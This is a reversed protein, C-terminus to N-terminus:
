SKDNPSTTPQETKAPTKDKSNTNPKSMLRSKDITLKAEDKKKKDSPKPLGLWQNISILDQPALTGAQQKLTLMDTIYKYKAQAYLKQAQLLLQQQNLLDVITSTGVNYQARMAKLSSENAIVSQEYASVQSIDAIVDLYAQRLSSKTDRKSQLLTYESADLTHNSQKVTAYDSGGNILSWTGTASLTRQNTVEDPVTQYSDTRSATATLNISPLFTGWAINVGKDAVDMLFSNQIITLNNKMAIDVWHAVDDPKPRSFPFDSKLPTVYEIMMGTIQALVEYSSELDNKAQITDAVSQEYQAKTSQVDTIAALGVDYKQQTQKLLEANWDQSAQAFELNDIAQLINFYATSVNLILTQRAQDYTIADAKAQYQAQTYTSWTSFDFLVQSLDAQSVNSFYWQKQGASPDEAYNYNLSGTLDVSPLLAGKAIDVGELNAQLTEYAAQYTGNHESAIDYVQVLNYYDTAPTDAAYSTGVSLCILSSLIALPKHKKM